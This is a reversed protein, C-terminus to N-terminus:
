GLVHRLATVAGDAYEWSHAAVVHCPPRWHRQQSEADLAAIVSELGADTISLAVILECRERFLEEVDHCLAARTEGDADLETGIAVVVGIVGRSSRLRLMVTQHHTNIRYSVVQAGVRHLLVALEYIIAGRFAKTAVIESWWSHQFEFQADRLWGTPLVLSGRLRHRRKPAIFTVQGAHGRRAEQWSEVLEASSTQQVLDSTFV